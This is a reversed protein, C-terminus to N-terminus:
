FGLVEKAVEVTRNWQDDRRQAARQMYRNMHDFNELHRQANILKNLERRLKQFNKVRDSDKALM